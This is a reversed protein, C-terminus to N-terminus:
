QRWDAQPQLEIAGDIAYPRAAVVNCGDIMAPRLVSGPQATALATTVTPPQRAFSKLKEAIQSPPMARGSLGNNQAILLDSIV